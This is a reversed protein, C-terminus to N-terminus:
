HYVLFSSNTTVDVLKWSLYWGLLKQPFCKRQSIVFTNSWAHSVDTDSDLWCIDSHMVICDLWWAWGRPNRHSCLKNFKSCLVSWRQHISKCWGDVNHWVYYNRPCVWYPGLMICKPKREKYTLFYLTMLCGPNICPAPPRSYEQIKHNWKLVRSHEQIQVSHEQINRFGTTILFILNFQFIISFYINNFRNFVQLSNKHAIINKLFYLIRGGKFTRSHEQIEYWGHLCRWSHLSLREVLFNITWM